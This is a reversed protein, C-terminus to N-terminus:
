HLVTSSAASDAAAPRSSLNWCARMYNLRFESPETSLPARHSYSPSWEPRGPAACELSFGAFCRWIALSGRFLREASCIGDRIWKGLAALHSVRALSSAIYIDTLKTMHCTDVITTATYGLRRSHIVPCNVKPVLALLLFWAHKSSSSIISTANCPEPIM